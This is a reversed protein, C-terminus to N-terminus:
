SVKQVPGDLIAVTSQDSVVKKPTRYMLYGALILAFAVGAKAVEGWPQPFVAYNITTLMSVGLGSGAVTTVTDKNM